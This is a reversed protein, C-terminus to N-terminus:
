SGLLSAETSSDWCENINIVFQDKDQDYSVYGRFDTDLPEAKKSYKRVDYEQDSERLECIESLTTELKGKYVLRWKTTTEPDIKELQSNAEKELKEAWIEGEETFKRGDEDVFKVPNGACYNYPSMGVYKEFLPDVSLWRGV